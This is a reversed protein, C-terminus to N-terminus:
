MNEDPDKHSSEKQILLVEEMSASSTILVGARLAQSIGWCLMRRREWSRGEEGRCGLGRGPRANSAGTHGTVCPNNM